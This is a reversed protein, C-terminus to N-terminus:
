LLQRGLLVSAPAQMALHIPQGQDVQMELAQWIDDLAHVHKEEMGAKVMADHAKAQAIYENHNGLWESLNPRREDEWNPFNNLLHSQQGEDLGAEDLVKAVESTLSPTTPTKGFPYDPETITDAAYALAFNQADHELSFLATMVMVVMDDRQTPTTSRWLPIPPDALVELFVTDKLIGALTAAPLHQLFTYAHM